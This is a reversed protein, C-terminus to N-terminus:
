KHSREIRSLKKYLTRRQIGLMEAARTKNGGADDLVQLIHRREIDSLETPVQDDSEAAPAKNLERDVDATLIAGEPNFATLRVLTNRLQRVNGPWTFRKLADMASPDLWVRRGARAVAEELFRNALLPVDATRERLPPVDITLVNLRYFLDERFGGSAVMEELNRNTAAVVRADSKRAAPAGVPRYEKEQLFRLLKSQFEPPVEGIEDFFVTGGRAAEVVGPRDRDAGTFAGRVSGFLESEWLSASVAGLDAVLFPHKARPSNEHIARAVLEKGVGTEGSILVTEDARACRAIRKYVEVIAPSCGVLDGFPELPTEDQAPPAAQGAAGAREIAALLTGMEFPKAVFEFAGRAEAEVTTRVSGRATILIVETGSNAAKAAELIQMGSVRDIYIDSVVIRYRGSAIKELATEGDNAVDVQYGRSELFMSVTSTIAEEDDIVLIPSRSM